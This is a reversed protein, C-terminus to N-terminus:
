SGNVIADVKVKLIDGRMIHLETKGDNIYYRHVDRDEGKNKPRFEPSERSISM